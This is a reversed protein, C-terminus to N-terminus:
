GKKTAGAIAKMLEQYQECSAGCLRKIAALNQKAMAPKKQMLFLEGQYELTGLHNPNIKLAKQYYVTAQSLQGLKRSAFGLLNNVDANNAVVQDVKKLEILAQQYNKAALLARSPALQDVAAEPTKAAVSPTVQVPVPVPAVPAMPAAPAPAPAAPAGSDAAHVGSIQTFSVFLALGCSAIRLNMLFAYLTIESSVIQFLM